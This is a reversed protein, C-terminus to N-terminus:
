LELELNIGSFISKSKVFSLATSSQNWITKIEVRSMFSKNLLYNEIAVVKLM